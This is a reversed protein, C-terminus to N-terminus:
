EEKDVVKTKEEPRDVITLEAYKQPQGDLNWIARFTNGGIKNKLEKASLDYHTAWLGTHSRIVNDPDM